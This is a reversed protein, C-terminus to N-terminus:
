IRFFDRSFRNKHKIQMGCEIRFQQHTKNYCYRMIFSMKVRAAVPICLKHLTNIKIKPRESIVVFTVGICAHICVYTCMNHHMLLYNIIRHCKILYSQM